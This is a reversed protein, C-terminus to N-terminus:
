YNNGGTNGQAEMDFRSVSILMRLRFGRAVRRSTGSPL